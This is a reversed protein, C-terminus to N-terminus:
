DGHMEEKVVLVSSASYRIKNTRGCQKFNPLSGNKRWRLLLPRSVELERQVDAVTLVFDDVPKDENTM